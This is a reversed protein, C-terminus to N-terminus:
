GLRKELGTKSFVSNANKDADRGANIALVHDLAEMARLGWNVYIM